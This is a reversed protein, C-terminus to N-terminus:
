TRYQPHLRMMAEWVERLVVEWEKQLGPGYVFEVWHRGIANRGAEIMEPTVDIQKLVPRDSAKTDDLIPYTLHM